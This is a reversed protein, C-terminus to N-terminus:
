SSEIQDPRWPLFLEVGDSAAALLEPPLVPWEQDVPVASPRRLQSDHAELAHLKGALHEGTRVKTVRRGAMLGFADV